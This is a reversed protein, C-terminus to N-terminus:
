PEPALQNRLRYVVHELGAHEARTEYEFGLREMVREADCQRKISCDQAWSKLGPLLQCFSGLRMHDCGAAKTMGHMSKPKSM